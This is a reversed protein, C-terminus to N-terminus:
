EGKVSSSANTSSNRDEKKANDVTEIDKVNNTQNTNSSDNDSDEDNTDTVAVSPSSSTKVGKIEELFDEVSLSFEGDDFGGLVKEYQSRMSSDKESETDSEEEQEEHM